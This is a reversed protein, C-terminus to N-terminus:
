PRGMSSRFHTHNSFPPSPSIGGTATNQVRRTNINTRLKTSSSQARWSSMCEGRCRLTATRNTAEEYTVQVYWVCVNELEISVRSTIQLKTKIWRITSFLTLCGKGTNFLRDLLGCFRCWDEDLTAEARRANTTTTPINLRMVKGAKRTIGPSRSIGWRM